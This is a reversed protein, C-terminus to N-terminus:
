KCYESKFATRKGPYFDGKSKRAQDSQLADSRRFVCFVSNKNQQTFSFDSGKKKYFVIKSENLLNQLTDKQYKESFFDM